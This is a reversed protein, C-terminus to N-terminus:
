GPTRTADALLAQWSALGGALNMATVNPAWLAGLPAAALAAAQEYLELKPLPEAEAVFQRYGTLFTPDHELLFRVAAKEGAGPLRRLTFYSRWVDLHGYVAMRIEAAARDVPDSSQLLRRTQALNYNLAFWADHIAQAPAGAVWDGDVVHQKARALLGGRDFQIRGERLWRVVPAAVDDAALPGTLTAVRLLTSRAVFLLDTLRGEVRTVGVYWPRPADALVIVLDHDSAANFAPGNASGIQLIGVVQPRESLCTVLAALSGLATQDADGQEIVM